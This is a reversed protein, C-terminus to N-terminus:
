IRVSKKASVFSSSLSASEWTYFSFFLKPHFNYVSSAELPLPEPTPKITTLRSPVSNVYARFNSNVAVLLLASYSAMMAP